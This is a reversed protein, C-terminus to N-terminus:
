RGNAMWGDLAYHYRARPVAEFQGPTKAAQCQPCREVRAWTALTGEFDILAQELGAWGCAACRQLTPWKRSESM